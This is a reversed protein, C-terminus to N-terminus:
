VSDIGLELVGWGDEREIESVCGDSRRAKSLGKESGGRRRWRRLM